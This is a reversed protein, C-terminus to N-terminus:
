IELVTEKRNAFVGLWSFIFLVVGVGFIVGGSETHYPLEYGMVLVSSVIGGRASALKTARAIELNVYYENIRTVQTETLQPVAM